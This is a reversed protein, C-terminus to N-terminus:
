PCMQAFVIQTGGDATTRLSLVNNWWPAGVPMNLEVGARLMTTIELRYWAQVDSLSDPSEYILQTRGLFQHSDIALAAGPYIPKERRLDSYCRYDFLIAVIAVLLITAVTIVLVGRVTPVPPRFPDIM